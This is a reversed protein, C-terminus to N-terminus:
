ARDPSRPAEGRWLAPARKAKGALVRVLIYVPIFVFPYTVSDGLLPLKLPLPFPVDAFRIELWALALAAPWLSACALALQVFFANGFAENALRNIARYAQRDGSRLANLSQRHRAMMEEGVQQVRSRNARYAVALTLEGLLTAWLALIFTGLWWGLAPNDPWRFPTILFLDIAELLRLLPNM